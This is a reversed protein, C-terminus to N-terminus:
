GTENLMKLTFSSIYGPFETISNMYTNSLFLKEWHSNASGDGGGNELPVGELDNCGFHDRAFNLVQPLIIGSYTQTGIKIQKLTENIPRNAGEKYYNPFLNNSFGLM